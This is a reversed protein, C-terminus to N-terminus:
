DIAGNIHLAKNTIATGASNVDGHCNDCPDGPNYGTTNVDHGSPPNTHCTTGCAAEASGGNWKPSYNNGTVGGTSFNGHCYTNSCRNTAFSYSPTPTIDTAKSALDSFTLEAQIPQGATNL